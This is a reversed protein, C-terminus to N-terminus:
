IYNYNQEGIGPVYRRVLGLKLEDSQLAVSSIQNDNGQMAAYIHGISVIGTIMCGVGGFEDADDWEVDEMELETCTEVLLDQQLRCHDGWEDVAVAVAFMSMLVLVAM